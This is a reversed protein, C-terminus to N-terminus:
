NIATATKITLIKQYHSKYALTKKYLRIYLVMNKEFVAAQFQSHDTHLGMEHILLGPSICASKTQNKNTTESPTPM